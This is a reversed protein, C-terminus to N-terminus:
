QLITLEVGCLCANGLDAPLEGSQTLVKSRGDDRGTVAIAFRRGLKSTGAPYNLFLNEGLCVGPAACLRGQSSYGMSQVSFGDHLLISEEEPYTCVDWIGSHWISLGPFLSEDACWCCVVPKEDIELICAESIEETPLLDLVTIGEGSMLCLNGDIQAVVRPIKAIIRVDFVRGMGSPPRINKLEGDQWVFLEGDSGQFAFSVSDGSIHLSGTKSCDPGNLGGFISAGERSILMKSDRFLLLGKGSQGQWLSYLHSESDRHLGKLVYRGQIELIQRGDCSLYTRSSSSFEAYLSGGLLHNMDINTSILRSAGAPIEKLQVFQEPGERSRMWQLLLLTGDAAGACSDRRWDYDDPWRIASLYLVTDRHLPEPGNQNPSTMGRRGTGSFLQSRPVAGFDLFYDRNCGVLLILAIALITFRTVNITNTDRM